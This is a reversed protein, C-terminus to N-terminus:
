QEEPSFWARGSKYWIGISDIDGVLKEIKSDEGSFDAARREVIEVLTSELSSSLYEIVLRKLEEEDSATVGLTQYYGEVRNDRDFVVKEGHKAEVTVLLTLM